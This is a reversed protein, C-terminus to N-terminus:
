PASEIAKDFAQLVQEKTTNPADNFEVIPQGVVKSFHNRTQASSTRSLASATACHDESETECVKNIAGAACYGIVKHQNNLKVFWGQSWGVQEILQKAAILAEKVTSAKSM